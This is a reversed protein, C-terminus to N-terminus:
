ESRKTNADERSNVVKSDELVANNATCAPIVADDPPLALAARALEAYERLDRLAAAFNEPRHSYCRDITNAGLELNRLAKEIEAYRSM